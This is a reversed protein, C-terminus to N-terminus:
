PNFLIVVRILNILVQIIQIQSIKKNISIIKSYKEKIDPKKLYLQYEKLYKTLGRKVLQHAKIM